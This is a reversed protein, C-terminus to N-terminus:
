GLTSSIADRHAKMQSEGKRKSSSVEHLVKQARVYPASSGGLCMILQVSYPYGIEETEYRLMMIWHGLLRDENKCQGHYTPKAAECQPFNEHWGRQVTRPLYQPKTRERKTWMQKSHHNYGSWNTFGGPEHDFVISSRLASIKECKEKVAPKTRISLSSSPKIHGNLLHHQLTFASQQAGIEHTYQDIEREKRGCLSWM